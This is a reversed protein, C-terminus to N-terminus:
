VERVGNSMGVLEGTIGILDLMRGPAIAILHCKRGSSGGIGASGGDTQDLRHKQLYGCAEISTEVEEGM